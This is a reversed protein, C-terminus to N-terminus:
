DIFWSRNIDPVYIQTGGGQLVGGIPTRQQEAFGKLISIKYIGDLPFM